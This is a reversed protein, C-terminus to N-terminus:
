EYRVHEERTPQGTVLIMALTRVSKMSYLHDRSILVRRRRMIDIVNICTKSLPISNVLNYVAILLCRSQPCPSHCDLSYHTKLLTSKYDRLFFVCSGWFHNRLKDRGRIIAYSRWIYTHDLICFVFSCSHPQHPSNELYAHHRTATPLSSSFERFHFLAGKMCSCSPVGVFDDGACPVASSFAPRLLFLCHLPLPCPLFLIEAERSM